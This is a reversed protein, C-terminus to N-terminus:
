RDSQLEDWEDVARKAIGVAAKRGQFDAFRDIVREVHDWTLETTFRVNEQEDIDVFELERAIRLAVDGIIEQEETIIARIADDYEM